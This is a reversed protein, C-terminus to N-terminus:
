SKLLYGLEPLMVDGSLRWRRRCCCSLVVGPPLGQGMTQCRHVMPRHLPCALRDVNVGAHSPKATLYCQVMFSGRCSVDQADDVKADLFSPLLSSCELLELRGRHVPRIFIPAGSTM